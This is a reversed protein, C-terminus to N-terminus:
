PMVSIEVEACARPRQLRKRPPESEQQEHATNDSRSKKRYRYKCRGGAVAYTFGAAPFGTKLSFWPFRNSKISSNRNCGQDPEREVEYM